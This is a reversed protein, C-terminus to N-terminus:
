EQKKIILINLNNFIYSLLLATVTSLLIVWIYIFLPIKPILAINQFYYYIYFSHTLWMYFSYKGWFPLFENKASILSLCAFIFIPVLLFDLHNSSTTQNFLNRICVTFLILIVSYLHPLKKPIKTFLSFKSFLIGVLFCPIWRIVKYISYSSLFESLIVIVILLSCYVLFKKNESKIYKDVLKILQNYLPFMAVFLIYDKVYWWEINYTQSVGLITLILTKISFDLKNLYFGLPLTVILIFWYMKYFSLLTKKSISIDKFLLKDKNLKKTKEYLGYGSIFCFLAVCIKSFDGIEIFFFKLFSNGYVITIREPFAFLHHFIMMLIAIGKIIQSDNKTFIM